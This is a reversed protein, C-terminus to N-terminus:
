LGLLYWSSIANQVLAIYTVIGTGSSPQNSIPKTLRTLSTDYLSTTCGHHTDSWEKAPDLM